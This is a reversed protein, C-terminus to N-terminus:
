PNPCAKMRSTRSSSGAASSSQEASPASAGSQEGREAGIRGVAGLAREVIVPEGQDAGVVGFAGRSHDVVGALEAAPLRLLEHARAPIAGEDVIPGVLRDLRCAVDESEARAQLTELAM